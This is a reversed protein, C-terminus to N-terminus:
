HLEQCEFGEVNLLFEIQPSINHVAEIRMINDRDEFDFDIKIIDKFTSLLNVISTKQQKRINTKFVLIAKQINNIAVM